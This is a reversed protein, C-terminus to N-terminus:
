NDIFTKITSDNTNTRNSDLSGSTGYMYGVYMPDENYLNNFDSKGIYGTTTYPSTGSYLLRVSKDENTRVIRWYIDNEILGNYTAKDTTWTGEAQGCEEESLGVLTGMADHQCINTSICENESEVNRITQSTLNVYTVEKGIYTCSTKTEKGFKVWNNTTNGSYYYVESGDETKNTKYLTGTTNETNAVSFDTRESITPNDELM